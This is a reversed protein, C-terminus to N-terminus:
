ARLARRTFRRFEQRDAVYCPCAASALGSRDLVTVDGRVYSILSMQRLAGAAETVGVRRVGLAQGLFDHTVQFNDHGTRDRSMSLWRALRPHIEHSRCCAASRALQGMLVYLYRHMLQQLAPSAALERRFAQAEIRWASGAGQVVARLQAATTGLALSAGLMGERGTMGVGIRAVGDSLSLLAILGTTPFFAHQMPAGPECLVEDPVLEVPQCSVLLRHRDERPLLELLENQFAPM